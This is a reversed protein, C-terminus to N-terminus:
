HRPFVLGLDEVFDALGAAELEVLSKLVFPRLHGRRVLAPLRPLGGDLLEALGAADAVLLVGLGTHRDPAYPVRRLGPGAAGCQWLMLEGRQAAFDAARLLGVALDAAPLGQPARLLAAWASDDFFPDIAASEAM